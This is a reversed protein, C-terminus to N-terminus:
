SDPTLELTNDSLYRVDMNALRTKLLCFYFQSQLFLNAWFILSRMQSKSFHEQCHHCCHAM